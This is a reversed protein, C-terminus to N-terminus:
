DLPNWAIRCPICWQAGYRRAALQAQILARLSVIDFPKALMADFATGALPRYAASMALMPITATRADARLRRCLEHGDIGPMMVDTVVLVEQVVSCYSTGLFDALFPAPKLYILRIRLCCEGVNLAWTTRANSFSSFDMLWGVM